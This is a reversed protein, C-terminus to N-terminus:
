RQAEVFRFAERDTAVTHARRYRGVGARSREVLYQGRDLRVRWDWSKWNSAVFSSGDSAWDPTSIRSLRRQLEDASQTRMAADAKVLDQIVRSISRSVYPRAPCGRELLEERTTLEALSKRDFSCRDYDELASYTKGSAKIEKLVSKTLYHEGETSMPGNVLQYLVLGIQYLDSSFGYAGSQWGEWPRYLDSHKSAKVLQAQQPIRAVSGFDAIKAHQGALMINSPKLDRHVIRMRHLHQLGRVIGETIRVAEQQGFPRRELQQQLNDGNVFEMQLLVYREGAITVIDADHLEVLHPNRPDGRLLQILTQPESLITDVEGEVLPICKLFRCEQLARHRGHFAYANAGGQIEVLNDFKGLAELERMIVETM